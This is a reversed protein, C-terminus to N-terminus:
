ELPCKVLEGNKAQEIGINIAAMTEKSLETNKEQLLKSEMNCLNYFMDDLQSILLDRNDSSLNKINPYKDISDFLAITNKQLKRLKKAIKKISKPM